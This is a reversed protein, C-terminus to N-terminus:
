GWGQLSHFLSGLVVLELKAEVSLGPAKLKKCM